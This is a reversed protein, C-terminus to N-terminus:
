VKGDSRNLEEDPVKVTYGKDIVDNMFSIYDEKFTQNRQPKKKM